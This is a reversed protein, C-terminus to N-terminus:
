GVAIPANARRASAMQMRAKRRISAAQAATEATVGEVVRYFGDADMRVVQGAQNTTWHAWEDGHRQILITSGDPQTYRFFGPRAPKALLSISCALLILLAAIKKM